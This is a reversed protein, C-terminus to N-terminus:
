HSTLSLSKLHKEKLEYIVGEVQSKASPSINAFGEKAHSSNIKSFTLKYGDLVGRGLPIIKDLVLPGEWLGKEQMKKPGEEMRQRMRSSSMNSGYAFYYYSPSKPMAEAQNFFPSALFLSCCLAPFM